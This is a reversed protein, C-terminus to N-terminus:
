VRFGLNSKKIRLKRIIANMILNIEKSEQYVVIAKEKLDPCAEVLMKLWYQTERAEKKAIGVKHIYDNESEADDAECYNAGISTGSRVFQNILPITVVNKPIIKALSVVQKGLNEVRQVLDFKKDM